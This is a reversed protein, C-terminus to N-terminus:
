LGWGSVYSSIEGDHERWLLIGLRSCDNWFTRRMELLEVSSFQSAYLENYLFYLSVCEICIRDYVESYRIPETKQIDLIAEFARDACDLWGDIVHKPFFDDRLMEQYVSGNIGGYPEQFTRIHTYWAQMNDFWELMPEAAEGFYGNFWRLKLEETNENSNWVLKSTLYTRYASWASVTSNGGQGQSFFFDVKKTAFHKCWDQITNFNDYPVLYYYFNINYFWTCMDSQLLENWKDAEVISEENVRADVGSTFDADLPALQITIDPDITLGTPANYTSRYVLMMYKVTRKYPAGEETEFWTRIRKAVEGFFMIASSSYAGYTETNATCEACKCYEFNDHIGFPIIYNTTTEDTKLATKVKDVVLELMLEREEDSGNANFCIQENEKTKNSAYGGSWTSEDTPAGNAMWLPHSRVDLEPHNFVTFWDIANHDNSRWGGKNADFFRDAWQTRMRFHDLRNGNRYVSGYRTKFDPVEVVDYNVLPIDTVGRDMTYCDPHFYELNLTRWLLEYVGYQVAYDNGGNIFVSNGKTVIRFGDGTVRDDAKINAGDYLDTDGLSIYQANEDYSLGSDTVAELSVGTGEYFYTSLENVALRLDDAKESPFVIKYESAGDKVIFKDTSMSNDEHVGNYLKASAGAEPPTYVNVSSEVQEGGCATLLSAAIVGSLILATIKRLKM